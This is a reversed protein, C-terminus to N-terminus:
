VMDYNANKNEENNDKTKNIEDAPGCIGTEFDCVLGSSLEIGELKSNGSNLPELPVFKKDSLITVEKEYVRNFLICTRLYNKM